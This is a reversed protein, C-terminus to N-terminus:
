FLAQAQALGAAAVSAGLLAAAYRGDAMAAASTDPLAGEVCAAAGQTECCESIDCVYDLDSCIYADSSGSGMECLPRFSACLSGYLTCYCDACGGDRVDCVTEGSLESTLGADDLCVYADCYSQSYAMEVKDTPACFDVYSGDRCSDILADVCEPEDLAYSDYCDCVKAPCGPPCAYGQEVFGLDPADELARSTAAPNASTPACAGGLASSASPVCAYGDACPKRSNELIGVDAPADLSCEVLLDLVEAEDEVEAEAPAAAAQDNDVALGRKVPGTLERKRRINALLRRIRPQEAFMKGASGTGTGTGANLLKRNPRGAGGGTGLMARRFEADLVVNAAIPARADAQRAEAALPSASALAAAASKFNLVM